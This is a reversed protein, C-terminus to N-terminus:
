LMSAVGKAQPRCTVRTRSPGMRTVSKRVAATSKLAWTWPTATRGARGRRARTGAASTRTASATASHCATCRRSPSRSTWRSAVLTWQTRRNWAQPPRETTAGPSPNPPSRGTPLLLHPRLRRAPRWSTCAPPSTMRCNKEAASCGTTATRASPPLGPPNSPCRPTPNLTSVLEEARRVGGRKASCRSTICLVCHRKTTVLLPMCARSPILVEDTRLTPSALDHSAQSRGTNAPPSLIAPTFTYVSDPLAPGKFDLGSKRLKAPPPSEVDQTAKPTASSSSKSVKGALPAPGLTTADDIVQLIATTAQRTYASLPGCLQELQVADRPLHVGLRLVEANSVLAPCSEDRERAMRDRWDWLAQLAAEQLPTLDELKPVGRSPVGERFLERYGLPNFRPKEYRALCLQKSANFVHELGTRGLKKWLEQRLRDYVYLLYHTDEAAYHLMEAPLPRVRWDSLQHKKDANVGCHMKLLHALSLAPYNLAKAAVHTDFCNVLYLGLDRQLWLVDKDCGHLVKVVAPNAFMGGLENLRSRLALVDVVFDQERSSVQSVRAFLLPLKTHCYDRLRDVGEQMGTSRM